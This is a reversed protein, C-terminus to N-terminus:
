CDLPQEELPDVNSDWCGYPPDYGHIIEGLAKIGEEPRQPCWARIYALCGYVNLVFCFLCLFWWLFLLPGPPM